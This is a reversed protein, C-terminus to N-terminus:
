TRLRRCAQRVVAVPHEASTRVLLHPAEQIVCRCSPRDRAQPLLQPLTDRHETRQVKLRVMQVSQLPTVRPPRKALHSLDEVVPDHLTELRPLCERTAQGIRNRVDLAHRATQALQQCASLPCSQSILWILRISGSSALPRQATSRTQRSAMQDSFLTHFIQSKYHRHDVCVVKVPISASVRAISGLTSTIDSLQCDGSMDFRLTSRWKFTTSNQIGPYM